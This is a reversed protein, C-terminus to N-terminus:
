ARHHRVTRGHHADQGLCGLSECLLTRAVEPYHQSLVGAAAMIYHQDLLVQADRPPLLKRHRPDAKIHGLIEQGVGLRTLAGGTGIVYQIATLDRGEVLGHRGYAGYAVRVEGAHRWVALDVAWRTLTVATQQATANTPIPMASHLDVEVEGAAAVIHSANIYVGLDGEVTRKSRPEPAVLLKAYAPSGETVSHVDTTAGGVDVTMVDGLVDALLETAQMVAGPTPIVDGAVLKKVREMGPATIIHRAFVEQIAQRVPTINLEDLRPYVNAVVFVPVHATHFIRQVEGRAAQNGAYIVPIALGLSALAQANAVVVHRDGDDVGGALLILNPQLRRIAEVDDASLRGATTFTVIAGAGLSAERAARLTMDRTLGHVTM